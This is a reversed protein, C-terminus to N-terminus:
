SSMKGLSKEAFTSEMSAQISPIGDAELFRTKKNRNNKVALTRASRGQAVISVSSPTHTRQNKAAPNVKEKKMMETFKIRNVAMQRWNRVMRRPRSFSGRRKAKPRRGRSLESGIQLQLM